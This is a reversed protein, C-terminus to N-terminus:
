VAEEWDDDMDDSHIAACVVDYIYAIADNREDENKESLIDAVINHLVDYRVEEYLEESDNDKIVTTAFTNDFNGSELYIYGRYGHAEIIEEILASTLGYEFQGDRYEEDEM